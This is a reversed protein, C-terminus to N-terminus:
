KNNVKHALSHMLHICIRKQLSLIDDTRPISIPVPVLLACSLTDITYICARNNEMKSIWISVSIYITYIKIIDDTMSRVYM